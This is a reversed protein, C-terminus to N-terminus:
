TGLVRALRSLALLRSIGCGRLDEGFIGFVFAFLYIRGKFEFGNNRAAVGIDSGSWLNGARLHKCGGTVTEWIGHNSFPHARVIAMSEVPLHTPQAETASALAINSFGVAVHGFSGGKSFSRTSVSQSLPGPQLSLSLRVLLLSLMKTWWRQGHYQCTGMGHVGERTYFFTRRCCIHHFASAYVALHFSPFLSVGVNAGNERVDEVGGAGNSIKSVSGLFSSMLGNSERGSLIRQNRREFFFFFRLFSKLLKCALVGFFGGDKIDWGGLRGM